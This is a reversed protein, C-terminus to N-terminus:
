VEKNSEEEDEKSDKKDEEPSFVEPLFTLLILIVFVGCVGAIGLPTKIYISLYGLLPLHLAVKGVVNSYAVPSADPTDNADGQLILQGSVTDNEIVRHTVMTNGSLRYTIIDGVEILSPEAEKTIVISGVSIEPEMSGSLVAMTQCGLLRPAILVIAVAALIIIVVTTLFNCIKRLM